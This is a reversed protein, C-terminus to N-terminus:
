RVKEAVNVWPEKGRQLLKVALEILTVLNPRRIQALVLYPVPVGMLHLVEGKTELPNQYGVAAREQLDVALRIPGAAAVAEAGFVSAVEVLGLGYVAMRLPGAGLARGWVTGLRPCFLAVTDDAVLAHGRRMFELAADTKGSGSAGLILVGLDWILVMVGHLSVQGEVRSFLLRELSAEVAARTCAAGLLVLGPVAFRKRLDDSEAVGAFTVVAAPVHNHLRERLESSDCLERVEDPSLGFVLNRPPVQLRPGKLSDLRHLHPSLVPADLDAPSPGWLLKLGAADMLEGIRLAVSADGKRIEGAFVAGSAPHDAAWLADSAV